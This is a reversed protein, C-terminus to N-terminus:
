LLLAIKPYNLNSKQCISNKDTTAILGQKQPYYVRSPNIHLNIEPGWGSDAM